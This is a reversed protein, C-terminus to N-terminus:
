FAGPNTSFPELDPEQYVLRAQPSWLLGESYHRGLLERFAGLLVPYEALLAEFGEGRQKAMHAQVIRIAAVTLTQHYKDQAGQIRTFERIQRCVERQATELGFRRLYIWALRLHAKHTFDGIPFLGERFLRIMEDDSYPGTQDNEKM